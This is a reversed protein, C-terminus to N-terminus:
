IGKSPWATVTDQSIPHLIGSFSLPQCHFSLTAKLQFPFPRTWNQFHQLHKLSIWASSDFLCNSTCTPLKPSLLTLTTLVSFPNLAPSQTLNGLLHIDISIFHVGLISGPASWSRFTPLFLLFWCLLHLFLLWYPLLFILLIHLGPFWPFFAYRPALSWGLWLSCTSTPTPLVLTVVAKWLLIKLSTTPDFTQSFNTCSLLPSSSNSSTLISSATMSNAASLLSSTVPVSGAERPPELTSEGWMRYFHVVRRAYRIETFHSHAMLTSIQFRNLDDLDNWNM